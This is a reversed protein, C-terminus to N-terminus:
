AESGDGTGDDTGEGTDDDTGGEDGTDGDIDVIKNEDDWAVDLGFTEALFRLPVYTRGCTITAAADLEVEVGDVTVTTSNIGFVVTTNEKVVTVTKAEEDWSM